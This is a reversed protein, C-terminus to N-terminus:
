TSIRSSGDPKRRLPGGAAKSKSFNQLKLYILNHGREKVKDHGTHLGWELALLMQKKWLEGSRYEEYSCGPKDEMVKWWGPAHSPLLGVIVAIFDGIREAQDELSPMDETGMQDLGPRSPRTWQEVALNLSKWAGEPSANHIRAYSKPLEGGSTDQGTARLGAEELVAVCYAFEELVDEEYTEKANDVAEADEYEMQDGPAEAESESESPEVDTVWDFEEPAFNGGQSEDLIVQLARSLHEGQPLAQIQGFLAPPMVFITYRELQGLNFV